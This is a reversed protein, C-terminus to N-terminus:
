PNSARISTFHQEFAACLEPKTAAYMYRLTEGSIQFDGVGFCPEIQAAQASFDDSSGLACQLFNDRLRDENLIALAGVGPIEPNTIDIASQTYIRATVAGVNQYCQIMGDIKTVLAAFVFNGSLLNAGGAIKALTSAIDGADTATYGVINPLFQQAATPDNQTDGTSAVLSCGAVLLMIMLIFLRKLM